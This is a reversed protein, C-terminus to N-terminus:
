YEYKEVRQGALQYVTDAIDGSWTKTEITGIIWYPEWIDTLEYPEELRVYVIQNPPPPPVHICAGFYPVLLFEDLLGGEDSELPVVFGPLKVFKGDLARVPETGYTWGSLPDDDEAFPSGADPDPILPPAELEEPPVMQDWMLIEPDKAFATRCWCRASTVAVLFGKRFRCDM